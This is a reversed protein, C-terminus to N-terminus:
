RKINKDLFYYAECNFIIMPLNYKKVLDDAIKHMFYSDGNMLLILDPHYEEVWDNFSKSAVRKYEM